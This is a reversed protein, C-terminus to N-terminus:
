AEAEAGLKRRLREAWKRTTAHSVGMEEAIERQNMGTMAMSVASLHPEPLEAVFRAVDIREEVDDPQGPALAALTVPDLLVARAARAAVRQESRRQNRLAVNLFGEGREVERDLQQREALTLWLAGLQDIEDHRREAAARELRQDILRGLSTGSRTSPQETVVELPAPPAPNAPPGTVGPTAISLSAAGIWAALTPRLSKTM